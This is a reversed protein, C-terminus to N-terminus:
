GFVTNDQKGIIAALKNDVNFAQFLSAKADVVLRLRRNRFVKFAMFAYMM